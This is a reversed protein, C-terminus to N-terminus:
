THLYEFMADHFIEACSSHFALSCTRCQFAFKSIPISRQCRHCQRKLYLKVVKFPHHHVRLSNSVERGGGGEEKEGEGKGINEEVEMEECKGVDEESVEEGGKEGNRTEEEKGESKSMEGEGGMGRVLSAICYVNINSCPKSNYSKGESCHPHFFEGCLICKTAQQHTSIRKFCGACWTSQSIDVLSFSHPGVSAESEESGTVVCGLPPRFLLAARLELETMTHDIKPHIIGPNMQLALHLHSIAQGFSDRGLAAYCQALYLHVEAGVVDDKEGEEEELLLSKLGNIADRIPEEHILSQM